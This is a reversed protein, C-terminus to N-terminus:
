QEAAKGIGIVSPAVEMAVNLEYGDTTQALYFEVYRACVEASPLMSAVQDRVVSIARVVPQAPDTLDYCVLNGPVPPINPLAAYDPEYVLENGSLWTIWPQGGSSPKLFAAGVQASNTTDIINIQRDEVGGSTLSNVFAIYRSNPSWSIYVPNVNSAIISTVQSSLDLLLLENNYTYAIKTGGPSLRMVSQALANEGPMGVLYHIANNLDISISNYDAHLPAVHLAGSTSWAIKSGDASISLNRLALEEAQAGQYEVLVVSELTRANYAVIQQESITSTSTYLLFDKVPHWAFSTSAGTSIRTELAWTDKTPLSAVVIQVRSLGGLSQKFAYAIFQRSPSHAVWLLEPVAQTLKDSVMLADEIRIKNVKNPGVKTVSATVESRTPTGEPMEFLAAVAKYDVQVLVQALNDLSASPIQASEGSKIALNTLGLDPIDVELELGPLENSQAQGNQDITRYSAKVVLTATRALPTYQISAAFDFQTPYPQVTITVSNANDGAYRLSIAVPTTSYLSENSIILELYDDEDSKEIRAINPGDIVFSNPNSVAEAHAFYRFKRKVTSYKGAEQLLPIYVVRPAAGGEWEFVGAPTAGTSEQTTESVSEPQVSQEPKALAETFGEIKAETSEFYSYDLATDKSVQLKDQELKRRIESSTATSEETVAGTALVTVKEAPLSTTEQSPATSSTSAVQSSGSQTQQQSSQERKESTVPPRYTVTTGVGWLMAATECILNIAEKTSVSEPETLLKTLQTIYANVANSIDLGIDWGLNLSLSTADASNYIDSLIRVFPNNKYVDLWREFNTFFLQAGTAFQLFSAVNAFVTLTVGQGTAYAAFFLAFIYDSSIINIIQELPKRIKLNLASDATCLAAKSGEIIKKFMDMDAQTTVQLFKEACSRCWNMRSELQQKYKIFEQHFAEINGSNVLQLLLLEQSPTLAKSLAKM